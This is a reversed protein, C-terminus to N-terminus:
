MEHNNGLNEIRYTQLNTFSEILLIGHDGSEFQCCDPCKELYNEVLKNNHVISKSITRDGFKLHFFEHETESQPKGCPCHKEVWHPDKWHSKRLRYLVQCWEECHYKSENDKMFWEFRKFYDVHNSSETSDQQYYQSRWTLFIRFIM